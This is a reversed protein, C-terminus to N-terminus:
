SQLTLKGGPDFCQDTTKGRKVFESPPPGAVIRSTREDKVVGLLRSVRVDEGLEASHIKAYISLEKVTM